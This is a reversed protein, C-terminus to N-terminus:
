SGIRLDFGVDLSCPGFGTEFPIHYHVAWRPAYVVCREAIIVQPLGLQLSYRELHRKGNGAIMNSMEGIVDRVLEDVETASIGTMRELIAFAGETPVSFSLAGSVEGSMGIVSTLEYIRQGAGVPLIEGARCSSGLMTEAVHATADVFPLVWQEIHRASNQHTVLLSM